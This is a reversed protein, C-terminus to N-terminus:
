SPFNTLLIDQTKFIVGRVENSVFGCFAAYIKVMNESSLYLSLLFHCSLILERNATFFWVELYTPNKISVLYATMKNDLQM